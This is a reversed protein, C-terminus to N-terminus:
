YIFALGVGAGAVDEFAEGVIGRTNTVDAATPTTVAPIVTVAGAAGAILRDGAVAAGTFTVAVVCRRAVTLPFEDSVQPGQISARTAPVDWRAVGCVRLSGAAAVGVLRNGTRREVLQGGTIAEAVNYSLQLGPWGFRPQVEPM